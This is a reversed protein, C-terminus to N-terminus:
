VCNPANVKLGGDAREYVGAPCMHSYFDALDAGVGEGPIVHSPITDRTSNASRFVADVKSFTLKGDPVFPEANATRRESRADTEVPIRGGPFRGSTLTMLAAKVGGVYFGNKFALRMNRTRYLDQMIYSANLLRDFEAL